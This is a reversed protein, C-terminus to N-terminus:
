CVVKEIALPWKKCHQGVLTGTEPGEPMKSYISRLVNSDPPKDM